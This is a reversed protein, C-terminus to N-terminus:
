LRATRRHGPGRLSSSSSLAARTLSRRLKCRRVGLGKNVAQFSLNLPAQSSGLAVIRLAHEQALVTGLLGLGPTSARILHGVRGNRCQEYVATTSPLIFEFASAPDPRRTRAVVCVVHDGPSLKTDIDYDNVLRLTESDSDGLPRWVDSACDIWTDSRGVLEVRLNGVFVAKRVHVTVTGEVIHESGDLPLKSPRPNIFQVAQAVDISLRAPSLVRSFLM